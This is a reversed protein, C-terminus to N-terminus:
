RFFQGRFGAHKLRVIYISVEKRRLYGLLCAAAGFRDPKGLLGQCKRRRIFIQYFVDIGEFAPILSAHIGYSTEYNIYTRFHTLSPYTKQTVIIVIVVSIWLNGVEYPISFIKLIKEFSYPFMFWAASRKAINARKEWTNPRKRSRSIAWKM